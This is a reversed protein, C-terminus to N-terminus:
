SVELVHETTHNVIAHDLSCEISNIRIAMLEKGLWIHYSWSRILYIERFEVRPCFELYMASWVLDVM